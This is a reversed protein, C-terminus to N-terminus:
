SKAHNKQLKNSVKKVNKRKAINKDRFKLHISPSVNLFLSKQPCDTMGNDNPNIETINKKPLNSVTNEKVALGLFCIKLNTDRGAEEWSKRFHIKNSKQIKTEKQQFKKKLNDFRRKAEGLFLSGEVVLWSVQKRM